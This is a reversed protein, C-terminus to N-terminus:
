EDNLRGTKKLLRVIKQSLVATLANTQMRWQWNHVKTAPTNMRGEEGLGLYDAMPVIVTEARSRMLVEIMTWHLNGPIVKKQLVMGINAREHPKAEKEYWGQITNNDHTGTYAVCHVPYNAPVHPNTHVDGSFGFLLVRMGPFGFKKMLDVVDPTIEGLDEAIIPLRDFKRALAKFFGAGPGQTWRGFVALKEYAPIQWFAAFGRFHDIRLYDFLQLAHAIRAIWWSYKAKKLNAWDYVPNGWRQGTRSFYDPPCGSIFKLNGETDIKFFSPHRWAEVSDYNVYIPIDGIIALGKSNAYAKLKHWQRFFLYQIFKVQEIDAANKSFFEKLVEPQRKKLPQPWENWCRGGYASKIASFLAFDDLWGKQAKVFCDFDERLTEKGSAASEGIPRTPNKLFRAFARKFIKEKFARVKPYDVAGEGLSLPARIESALLFGEIVLMEPSIFLPNGAFACSCSYPSNGNIGDTPNIPLIQWYKQRSSVAFDVFAYAFSGM